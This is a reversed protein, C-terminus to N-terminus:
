NGVGGGGGGISSGQGDRKYVKMWMQKRNKKGVKGWKVWRAREMMEGDSRMNRYTMEVGERGGGRVHGTSCSSCRLQIRYVSYNM